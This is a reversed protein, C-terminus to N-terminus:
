PERYHHSRVDNNEPVLDAFDGLPAGQDITYAVQAIAGTGPAILGAVATTLDVGVCGGGLDSIACNFGGTRATTSCLSTDIHLWPRLDADCIDVHVQSVPDLANDLEIDISSSGFVDTLALTVASGTCEDTSDDCILPFICPNGTFGCLFDGTDEQCYEVGNCYQGDDPCPDGSGRCQGDQCADIQTCYLGDDCTTGNSRPQAICQNLTEDCSGDNCADGAASCDRPSGGCLGGTCVDSDSCYLGDNCPTGNTVPQTVCQDLTDDCVGSNCQNGAASCDRATGGTCVGGTCQESLTCFLGDDCAAGDARPQTVCQNLTEDCTGDNCADGAVSCDRAIGTTCAGSVCQDFASCFLGDECAAGDARPQAVCQNVTEDCVGLNCQDGAALCDRPSGATCVGSACQDSVTCFFGDDCISGDARPQGVCQNVSEDCVGLNCQDGAASCDRPPGTVCIGGICQDSASCFLGDECAAGDAKTQVICQDITEDCIGFHCADGVASCDRATGSCVGSICVDNQTCWQGDDCSNANDTYQCVNDVCVEDTCLNTDDCDGDVVCMIGEGPIWEDIHTTSYTFYGKGEEVPFDDGICMGVDLASLWRQFSADWSFARSTAPISDILSCATYYGPPYPLAPLNFGPEFTLPLPYALVKGYFSTTANSDCRLFYGKGAEIPFDNGICLGVTDEAFLWSQSLPDWSYAQTCEPIDDILSCATYTIEEFSANTIPDFPFATLNFGTRLDTEVSIFRELTITGTNLPCTSPVTFQASAIRGSGGQFDLVVPDGTSYFLVDDTLTSFLNGLNLVWVGAPDVIASIWYSDVGAHVLELYVISGEAPTIGDELYVWGYVPCNLPISGPIQMTTFSYYLGGNNDIAGGSKVEYYYTTEPVLNSLTV